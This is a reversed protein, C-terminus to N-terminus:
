PSLESSMGLFESNHFLVPLIFQERQHVLVAVNGTGGCPAFAVVAAHHHMRHYVKVHEVALSFEIQLLPRLPFVDLGAFPIRSHASVDVQALVHFLGQEALGTLFQAYFAECGFCQGM